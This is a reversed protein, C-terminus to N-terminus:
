PPNLGGWRGGQKAGRCEVGSITCTSNCLCVFLMDHVFWLDTNYQKLLLFVIASLILLVSDPVM